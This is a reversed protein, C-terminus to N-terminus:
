CMESPIFSEPSLRLKVLCSSLSLRCDDYLMLKQWGPAHVNLWKYCVTSVVSRFRISEISGYKSFTKKLEKYEAKQITSVPLNGVFLTRENKEKEEERIKLLREKEEEV